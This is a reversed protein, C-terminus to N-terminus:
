LQIFPLCIEYTNKYTVDINGKINLVYVENKNKQTSSLYFGLDSIKHKLSKNIIDINDYMLKLEGIAPLYSNITFLNAIMLAGCPTKHNLAKYKRRIIKSNEIGDIDSENKFPIDISRGFPYVLENRTDIIFRDIGDEIDDGSIVCVLDVKNQGFTHDLMYDEIVDGVNYKSTKHTNKSSIKNLKEVIYRNIKKM